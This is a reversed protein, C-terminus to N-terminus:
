DKVDPNLSYTGHVSAEALVHGQMARLADGATFDIGDVGLTAVDLAFVRFFYRHLREDHPPPYPGDYGRYTGAMDAHGKFYATYGNIGQRAGEPGHPTAKGGAQFGDSCAGEEIVTVSAPLDVMAWHVFDTRPQDRPIPHPAADTPVDPDICLLVFSRTGDPAGSWALHPNRNGGPGVDDSTRAGAALRADLRAGNKFSDSHLKM